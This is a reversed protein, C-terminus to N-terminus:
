QRFGQGSDQPETVAQGGLFSPNGRPDGGPDLGSAGVDVPRKRGLSRAGPDRRRPVASGRGSMRHGAMNDQKRGGTSKSWVKTEGAASLMPIMMKAAQLMYRAADRVRELTCEENYRLLLRDFEKELVHEAQEPTGAAALGSMLQEKDAELFQMMEM